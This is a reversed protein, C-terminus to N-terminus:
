NIGYPRQASEIRLIIENVMDGIFPIWDVMSLIWILLPVVLAIAVIIGLGYVIGRIFGMWLYRHPEYHSALLEMHKDLSRITKVLSKSDPDKKKPGM